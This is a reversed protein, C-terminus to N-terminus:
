RHEVNVNVRWGERVKGKDKEQHYKSQYPIAPPSYVPTMAELVSLLTSQITNQIHSLDATDWATRSGSLYKPNLKEKGKVTRHKFYYREINRSLVENLLRPIFRSKALASLPGEGYKREGEAPTGGGGSRAAKLMAAFPVRQHRARMGPNVVRKIRKFYKGAYHFTMGQKTKDSVIPAGRKGHVGTGEEIFVGAGPKHMDGTNSYQPNMVDISVSLGDLMALTDITLALNQYNTVVAHAKAFIQQRVYERTNLPRQRGKRRAM